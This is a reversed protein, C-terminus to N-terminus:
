WRPPRPFGWEAALADAATEPDDGEFRGRNGLHAHALEHAIVWRIFVPESRWMRRKLVVARVPKRGPSPVLFTAGRGVSNDYDTLVFADDGVLGARVNEPMAILVARVHGRLSESLPCRGLFAEIEGDTDLAPLGPAPSKDPPTGPVPNAPHDHASPTVGM